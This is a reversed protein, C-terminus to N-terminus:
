AEFSSIGLLTPKDSSSLMLVMEVSSRILVNVSGYLVLEGIDCTIWVAVKISSEDLRKLLRVYRLCKM